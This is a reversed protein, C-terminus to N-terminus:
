DGAASNFTSVNPGRKGRTDTSAWYITVYDPVTAEFFNDSKIIIKFEVATCPLHVLGEKNLPRFNTTSWADNKKVRYSIAINYNNTDDVQTNLQVTTITKLNRYAMDIPNSVLYVDQQEFATGAVKWEGDVNATGTVTQGIETLGRNFLYTTSGNSLFYRRETDQYSVVVPSNKWNFFFEEYGLDNFSLDANIRYLHSDNGIYMVSSRNGNIAGPHKIGNLSLVTEGFGLGEVVPYLYSVGGTGAVIVGQGLPKIAQISGQWSVQMFGCENREIYDYILPKGTKDSHATREGLIGEAYLEPLFWWLLDDGGITSWWVMNEPMTLSRGLGYRDNDTFLEKWKEKFTATGTFGGLVARGNFECGANFKVATQGFAYADRNELWDIGSVWITTQGNTLLWAKNFDIINWFRGKVISLESRNVLSDYITLPLIGSVADLTYISDRFGLFTKGKGQIVQPYPFDILMQPDIQESPLYDTLGEEIVECNRAVELGPANITKRYRNRLGSSIKLQYPFERM